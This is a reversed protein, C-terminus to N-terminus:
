LHNSPKSNACFDAYKDLDGVEEYRGMQALLVMKTALVDAMGEHASAHERGCYFRMAAILNRREMQQFVVKTDLFRADPAPWAIGCRAFEAALLPKDFRIINHGAYDCGELYNFISHAYESFPPNASVRENTIGNVSMAEPSIVKRPNFFFNRIEGPATLYERVKIASFQVIRDEAVNLGTTELDIFAIPREL